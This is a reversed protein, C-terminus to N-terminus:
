GEGQKVALDGLEQKLSYGIHTMLALLKPWILRQSSDCIILLTKQIREKPLVHVLHDIRERSEIYFVIELLDSEKEIMEAIDRVVDDALMGVFRGMTVFDRQELLIRAIDKIQHTTLLMLLERALRPDLYVAI